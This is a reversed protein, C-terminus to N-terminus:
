AYRVTTRVRRRMALGALGFGGIMMGWAAPEPVAVVSIDDLGFDNGSAEPTSNYISLNMSSATAVFSGSFQTWVGTQSTDVTTSAILISNPLPQSGNVSVLFPSGNTGTFDANCCTNTAWASFLYTQGVALGTLQQSFVNFAAANGNAVGNAILFNGSGGHGLVSAWLNHYDASNTGVTYTSEAYLANPGPAGVYSYESTFGTNGAEFDGNTVSEQALAPLPALLAAALALHKIM